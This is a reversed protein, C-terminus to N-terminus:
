KIEVEPVSDAYDKSRFMYGHVASFLKKHAQPELIIVEGTAPISVKSRYMRDESGFEGNAITEIRVVKLLFLRALIKAAEYMYFWGRSDSGVCQGRPWGKQPFKGIIVIFPAEPRALLSRVCEKALQEPRM